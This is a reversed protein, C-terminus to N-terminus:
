HCQIMVPLRSLKENIVPAVRGVPVGPVSPAVPLAGKLM